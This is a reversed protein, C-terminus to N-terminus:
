DDVITLYEPESAIARGIEAMVDERSLPLGDADFFHTRPEIGIRRLVTLRRKFWSEEAAFWV